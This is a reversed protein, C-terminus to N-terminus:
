NQKINSNNTMNAQDTEYFVLFQEFIERASKKFAESQIKAESIKNEPTDGNEYEIEQGKSIGFCTTLSGISLSLTSMSLGKVFYTRLKLKEEDTFNGNEFFNPYQKEINQFANIKDSIDSMEDYHSLLYDFNLMENTIKIELMERAVRELFEAKDEMKDSMMAKVDKINAQRNKISEKRVAGNLDLDVKRMFISISRYDGNEEGSGYKKKWEAVMEDPLYNDHEKAKNKLHLRIKAENEGYDPFIEKMSKMEKELAEQESLPKEKKIANEALKKGDDLREKVSQSELQEKNDKEFYKRWLIESTYDYVSMDATQRNSTLVIRNLGMNEKAYKNAYEDIRRDVAGGASEHAMKRADIEKQSMDKLFVYAPTDLNEVYKQWIGYINETLNTITKLREVEEDDLGVNWDRIKDFLTKTDASIALLTNIKWFEASEIDWEDLPKNIIEEFKKDNLNLLENIIPRFVEAEIRDRLVDDTYITPKYSFAYGMLDRNINLGNFKDAITKTLRDQTKILKYSEADKDIKHTDKLSRELEENYYKKLTVGRQVPAKSENWKEYFTKLNMKKPAPVNEYDTTVKKLEEKLGAIVNEDAKNGEHEEIERNLKDLQGKLEYIKVIEKQGELCDGVAKFHALEFLISDPEGHLFDAAEKSINEISGTILDLFERYYDQCKNVREIDMNTKNIKEKISQAKEKDKGCDALMGLLKTQREIFDDRLAYYRSMAGFTTDMEDKLCKYAEGKSKYINEVDDQNANRFKESTYTEAMKIASDLVNEKYFKLKANEYNRKNREHLAKIERKTGIDEKLKVKDGSVVLGHLELHANILSNFEKASSAKMELAAKDSESIMSFFTPYKSKMENYISLKKGYDYMKGINESLYEDSFSADTLKMDVISRVYGMLEENNIGDTGYKDPSYLEKEGYEKKVNALQSNLKDQERVTCRDAKSFTRQCNKIRAKEEKRAKYTNKAKPFKQIPEQRLETKPAKWDGDNVKAAIKKNLDVNKEKNDKQMLHNYLNVDRVDFENIFGKYWDEYTQEKSENIQMNNQLNVNQQINNVQQTDNQKQQKKEIILENGFDGM